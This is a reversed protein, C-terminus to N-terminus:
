AEVPEEAKVPVACPLRQPAGPQAIRPRWRAAEQYETLLSTPIKRVRSGPRLERLVRAAEPDVSTGCVVLQEDDGLASVLLRAVDTNILGDIVALRSRGKRGCFPSVPEYAFGLQAATAESLANNVAWEALVIVGADDDFMSPGVDLIRFGGGGAWGVQDTIGGSDDGAVVRRLREITFRDLTEQEREIGVWRRGMKHAVAATTGSGVFCDLVVDGPSTAIQVVRQLLREPKPTAFAEDHPFLALQEKKGEDNHGVEDAPWWSWPTLGEDDALYRIVAPQANGDKGFYIRGVRSPPMQPGDTLLGEYTSRVMSWCRGRPPHHSVGTPTVIEYMQNPRTGPATMPVPRWPGNPDGNANRYQKADSRPIRHRVERWAGGMPSYVLLYDHVSGIAPRSERSYRKQWVITAIFKDRGFIEDMLVRLHAQEYDDCHVWVSGNPALMRRVQMLRDRMMTLYVSHELADDYHLFSQRTNFPPDLYALRIKGVYQDAYASIEALSHLANLADGSILLNDPGSGVEGAEHLLRVEAVRYDTHPVWEYSGDEHALLCLDKNTWTLELRGHYPEDPM